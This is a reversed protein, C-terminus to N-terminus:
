YKVNPISKLQKKELNLKRYYGINIRLTPSLQTGVVESFFPASFNLSFHQDPNSWYTLSPELFIWQGGTSPVNSDNIKDDYAKRYRFSIAPDIILNKIIFRDSISLATQWENGFQYHESGLYNRNVGKRAFVNQIALGTSPRSKFVAQFNTWFLLDFAGSGPQLDAVYRLGNEDRLDSAGTPFKPGTGVSWTVRDKKLLKYKLLVAADGKGVTQSRSLISFQNVNRIQQVFSVFVDASWKDNFSYGGEFLITNTIRERSEDELLTRESLLRRVRSHDVSVNLQVVKGEVAPLGLNASVPVGGSCCTQGFLSNTLFSICIMLAIFIRM